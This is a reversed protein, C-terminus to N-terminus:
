PSTIDKQYPSLLYQDVPLEDLNGKLNLMPTDSPSLNIALLTVAGENYQRCQSTNAIKNSLL